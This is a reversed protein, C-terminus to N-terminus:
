FIVVHAEFVLSTSYESIFIINESFPIAVLAVSSSGHTGPYVIVHVYFSVLPNASSARFYYSAVVSDIYILTSLAFSVLYLPATGASAVSVCAARLVVDSFSGESCPVYHDPASESVSQVSCWIHFHPM